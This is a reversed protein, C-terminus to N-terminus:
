AEAPIAWIQYQSVLSTRGSLIDTPRLGAAVWIDGANLWQSIDIVAVLEGNVALYGTGGRALFEIANQEGAGANFTYTPGSQTPDADGFTLQWEGASNLILRLQNNGQTHRFGFGYDFQISTDSPNTFVASLYFDAVSVGPFVGQVSGVGEILTGDAPGFISGTQLATDRLREFEAAEEAPVLPTATATSEETSTPAETETPAATETPPPQTPTPTEPATTPTITTRPTPTSSAASRFGGSQQAEFPNESTATVTLEPTETAAVL